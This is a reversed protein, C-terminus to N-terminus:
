LCYYTDHVVERIGEVFVTSLVVFFAIGLSGVSPSIEVRVWLPKATKLSLSIGVDAAPSAGGATFLSNSSHNVFVKLLQRSM